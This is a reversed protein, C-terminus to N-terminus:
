PAAKRAADLESQDAVLAAVTSSPLSLAVQERRLWRYRAADDDRGLDVPEFKRGCDVCAWMGASRRTDEFVWCRIEAHACKSM